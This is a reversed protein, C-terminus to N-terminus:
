FIEPFWHWSVSEIDNEKLCCRILGTFCGVLQIPLIQDLAQYKKSVVTGDPGALSPVDITGGKSLRSETCLITKIVM